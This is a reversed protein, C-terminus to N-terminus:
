RLEMIAAAYPGLRPLPFANGEVALEVEPQGPVVLTVRGIRQGAPPTFGVRLPGTPLTHEAKQQELEALEPHLEANYNIFQLLAGGAVLSVDGYVGAAGEGALTLRRQAPLLPQLLEMVAEGQGPDLESRHMVGVELRDAAGVLKVAPGEGAIEEVEFGDAYPGWVGKAAREGPAAAYTKGARPALGEGLLNTTIQQTAEDWVGFRVKRFWATGGHQRLLVHVNASRVPKAPRILTRSSEWGHTGTKFSAVQGWLNTGDQYTIDVYLAYDGDPAGSVSLAKSEGEVALPMATQQDVVVNQAAGCRVGRAADGLLYWVTKGDIQRTALGKDGAPKRLLEPPQALLSWDPAYRPTAGLVLLKGGGAVYGALATAAEPALAVADLLVTAPCTALKATSLGVDSHIAFSVHTRMLAQGVAYLQQRAAGAALFSRASFVIGVEAFERRTTLYPELRAGVRYAEQVLGAHERLLNGTQPGGLGIWSVAGQSMIEGLALRVRDPAMRGHRREGNESILHYTVSMGIQRRSLAQSLKLWLIQQSEPPFPGWTTGEICMLDVHDGYAWQYTSGSDQHYTGDTAFGPRLAGAADRCLALFDMVSRIRFEQLHLGYRPEAPLQRLPAAPLGQQGAYQAWRAECHVCFCPEYHSAYDIHCGDWGARAMGRFVEASHERWLPNNVCASWNAAVTPFLPDYPRRFSGDANVACLAQIKATDNGFARPDIM